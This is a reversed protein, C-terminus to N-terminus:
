SFLEANCYSSYHSPKGIFDKPELFPFELLLRKKGVYGGSLTFSM